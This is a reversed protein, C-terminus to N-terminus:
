AGFMSAGCYLLCVSVLMLPSVSLLVIVTPSRLVGSVEISIDDFFSRLFSAPNRFKARKIVQKARDKYYYSAYSRDILDIKKNLPLSPNKIRCKTLKESCDACLNGSDAVRGCCKCKPVFILNKIIEAM